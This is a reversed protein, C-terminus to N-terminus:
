GGAAMFPAGLEGLLWNAVVFADCEDGTWNGCGPIEQITKRVIEKVDKRPLKGLFLKRATAQPATSVHAAKMYLGLRVVGHLEALPAIAFAGHTPLSEIAFAAGTTPRGVIWNRLSHLRMAREHDSKPTRSYEFHEVQVRRMDCDWDLPITCIGPSTLSLDLGVAYM